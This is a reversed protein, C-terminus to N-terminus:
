RWLAQLGFGLLHKFPKASQNRARFPPVTCFGLHCARLERCQDGKQQGDRSKGEAWIRVHSVDLGVNGANFGSGM